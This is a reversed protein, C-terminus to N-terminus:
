RRGPSERSLLVRGTLLIAAALLAAPVAALAWWWGGFDIGQVSAAAFLGLLSLAFLVWAAGLAYHRGRPGPEM